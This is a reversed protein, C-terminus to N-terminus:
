CAVPTRRWSGSPLSPLALLSLCVWRSLVVRRRSQGNTARRRKRGNSREVGRGFRRLPNFSLGKEVSSEKRGKVGIGSLVRFGKKEGM